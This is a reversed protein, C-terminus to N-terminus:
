SVHRILDVAHQETLLSLNATELESIPIGAKRFISCLRAHTYQFYQETDDEFSTMADM